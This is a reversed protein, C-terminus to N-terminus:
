NQYAHILNDLCVEKAVNIDMDEQVAYVDNMVHMGWWSLTEIILQTSYETHKMERCQGSNQLLIIYDLMQSFFHERYEKYYTSIDGVDDLNNEIILIGRGYQAILDFACSLVKEFSNKDVHNVLIREFTEKQANLVDKIEKNLDKFLTSGLPLEFEKNLIDPTITAKLTFALVDKKSSFYVYLMGTSLGIDKAIDKMQTRAYGKNIFLKSASYYIKELRNKM